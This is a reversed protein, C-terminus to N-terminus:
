LDGLSAFFSMRGVVHYKPVDRPHLGGYRVNLPDGKRDYYAFHSLDAMEAHDKIKAESKGHRDPTQKRQKQKDKRRKRDSESNTQLPSRSSSPQLDPFSSFSPASM